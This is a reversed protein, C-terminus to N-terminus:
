LGNRSLPRDGRRNRGPPRLLKRLAAANIADWDIGRPGKGKPTELIMPIQALRPDNVFNAFGRLGIKGRGIHAHRDRRSGLAHLSDNLHIALLREIGIVRGFASMTRRYAAPTRIDYGAAFVHCTDLCVGFRRPRELRGLIDALQEFTAGIGNGAGATTELLVKPRRRACAAMIRNLADAIRAIGAGRDSASGPHIVLYEIGLRGCRDLEDLATSIGKRRLSGRGALNVLYSGHAVVPGIRRRRRTARFLRVAEDGPVGFRWQRPNRVFMGVADFGYDGAALLANHLGGGIGLHSGLLM